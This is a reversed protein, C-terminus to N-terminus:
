VEPMVSATPQSVRPFRKKEEVASALAEGLKRSWSYSTKAYRAISMGHYDLENIRLLDNKVKNRKTTDDNPDDSLSAALAQFRQFPTALHPRYSSRM